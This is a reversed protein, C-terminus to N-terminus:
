EQIFDSCKHTFSLVLSHSLDIGVLRHFSVCLSTKPFCTEITIINQVEHAFNINDLTGTLKPLKNVLQSTNTKIWKREQGTGTTPSRM